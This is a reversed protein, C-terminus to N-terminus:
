APPFTRTVAALIQDIEASKDTVAIFWTAGPTGTVITDPRIRAFTQAPDAFRKAELKAVTPLVALSLDAVGVIATSNASGGAAGFITVGDTFRLDCETTGDGDFVANGFLLWIGPNLTLTLIENWNGNLINVSALLSTYAM